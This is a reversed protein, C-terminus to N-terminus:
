LTENYLSMINEVEFVNLIWIIRLIIKEQDTNWKGNNRDFKSWLVTYHSRHQGKLSEM